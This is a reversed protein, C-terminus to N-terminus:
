PTMAERLKAISALHIRMRIFFALTWALNVFVAALWAATNGLVFIRRATDADEVALQPLLARLSLTFLWYLGWVVFAIKISLPVSLCTFEAVFDPNSDGGGAEFSRQVGIVSIVTLMLFEFAGLWDRGQNAFTLTSYGIVLSIVFGALLYYAKDRPSVREHALDEVLRKTALFYM